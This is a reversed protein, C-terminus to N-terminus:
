GQRQIVGSSCAAPVQEIKAGAGTLNLREFIVLIIDDREPKRVQAFNKSAWTSSKNLWLNSSNHSTDLFASLTSCLIALGFMSWHM